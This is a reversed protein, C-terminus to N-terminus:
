GEGRGRGSSEWEKKTVLVDATSPLPSLPLLTIPEWAIDPLVPAPREPRFYITTLCYLFKSRATHPNTGGIGEGIKNGKM